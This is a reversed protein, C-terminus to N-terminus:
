LADRCRHPIEYPGTILRRGWHLDSTALPALANLAEAASLRLLLRHNRAGFTGRELRDSCLQSLHVSVGFLSPSNTLEPVNHLELCKKPPRDDSLSAPCNSTAPLPDGTIKSGPQRGRVADRNKAEAGRRSLDDSLAARLSGNQKSASRRTPTCLWPRKSAIISSIDPERCTKIMDRFLHLAEDM